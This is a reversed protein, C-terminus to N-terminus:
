QRRRVCRRHHRPKRVRRSGPRASCCSRIPLKTRYLGHTATILLTRLDNDGFTFNAAVEPVQIVGLCRAEQDFMHIGGPGTCYLIGDGDIKM